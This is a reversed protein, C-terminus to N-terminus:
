NIIGYMMNFVMDKYMIKGEDPIFKDLIYEDVTRNSFALDETFTESDLIRPRVNNVYTLVLDELTSEQHNSTGSAGYCKRGNWDYGNERACNACPMIVINNEVQGYAQCNPCIFQNIEEAM